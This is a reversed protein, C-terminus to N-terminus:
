SWSLLAQGISRVSTRSMIPLELEVAHLGGVVLRQGGRELALMLRLAEDAIEQLGLDRLLLRARDFVLERDGLQREGLVDVVEREIVRRDVLSEHAIEGAAAEDGLLSVDDQDSSGSGALGMQGDGDRSAADAGSRATAEEGGDIEDILELGFAAGSALSADGVIEGAEVEDDEVFEAIQGEGLGAPM